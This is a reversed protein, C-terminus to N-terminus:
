AQHVFKGLESEVILEYRRQLHNRLSVRNLAQLLDSANREFNFEYLLELELDKSLIMKITEVLDKSELNNIYAIDFLRDKLMTGTKCLKM